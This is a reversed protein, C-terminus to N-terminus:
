HLLFYQVDALHCSPDSSRSYKMITYIILDDVGLLNLCRAYELVQLDEKRQRHWEKLHNLM